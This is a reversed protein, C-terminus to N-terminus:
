AVRSIPPPLLKRGPIPGGSLVAEVVECFPTLTELGGICDQLVFHPHGDGNLGPVVAVWSEPTIPKGSVGCCVHHSRLRRALEHHRARVDIVQAFSNRRRGGFMCRFSFLEGGAVTM